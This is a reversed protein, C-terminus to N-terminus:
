VGKPQLAGKQWCVINVTVVIVVLLLIGCVNLGITLVDVDNRPVDVDERVTHGILSFEVTGRGAENALILMWKGDEQEEEFFISDIEVTLNMDPPSGSLVASSTCNIIKKGTDDVIKVLLCETIYHILGADQCGVAPFTYIIQGSSYISGEMEVGHRDLLRASVPPNGEDWSCNVLVSSNQQLVDEAPTMTLSIVSGPYLIRSFNKKNKM